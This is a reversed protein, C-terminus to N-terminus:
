PHQAFTRTISAKCTQRTPVDHVCQFGYMYIPRNNVIHQQANHFHMSAIQKNQNQNQTTGTKHKRKYHFTRSCSGVLSDICVHQQLFIYLEAFDQDLQKSKKNFDWLSTFCSLSFLFPLSSPVDPNPNHFQDVLWSKNTTQSRYVRLNNVTSLETKNTSTLFKSRKIAEPLAVHTLPLM